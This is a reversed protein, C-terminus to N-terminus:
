KLGVGKKKPIVRDRDKKRRKTRNEGQNTRNGNSQKRDKMQVGGKLRTKKRHAGEATGEGIERDGRHVKQVSKAKKASDDEANEKSGKQVAKRPKTTLEKGGRRQGDKEL